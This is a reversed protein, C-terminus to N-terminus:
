TRRLSALYGLGLDSDYFRTQLGILPQVLLGVVHQLRRLPRRVGSATTRKEVTSTDALARADRSLLISRAFSTLNVIPFGYCRLEEVMFGAAEVVETLSDRSYRRLHGAAEDLVGYRSPHAPVSIFLRGNDSLRSGWSVLAGVDDEIHELVEFCLVTDFQSTAPVVDIDGHYVTIPLMLAESRERQTQCAELSIDAVSVNLGLQALHCALSSAGCGIELVRQGTTPSLLDMLAHIRHKYAAPGPPLNLLASLRYRGTHQNLGDAPRKAIDDETTAVSLYGKLLKAPFRRGAHKIM